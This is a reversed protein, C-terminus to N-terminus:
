KEEEETSTVTLDELKDQGTAIEELIVYAVNQVPVKVRPARGTAVMDKALEIAYNVMRFPNPFRALLNERTVSHTKKDM